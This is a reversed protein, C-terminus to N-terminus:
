SPWSSAPAGAQRPLAILPTTELRARPTGGRPSAGRASAHRAATEERAGHAPTSDPDGPAGRRRGAPDSGSVSRRGHACNRTAASRVARRRNPCSSLTMAGWARGARRAEDASLQDRERVATCRRTRADPLPSAVAWRAALTLGGGQSLHAVAKLTYRAQLGVVGSRSVSRASSRLGARGDQLVGPPLRAGAQHTAVSEAAVKLRM